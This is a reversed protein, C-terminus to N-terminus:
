PASLIVLMVVAAGQSSGPDTGRIQGSETVWVKIPNTAVIKGPLVRQNGANIGAIPGFGQGQLIGDGYSAGPGGDVDAQTMDVAQHAADYLGFVGTVGTGIDGQPSTGDWATDIEIWGDLLVENIAPVYVTVGNALGATDFAFPFRVVTIAGGGSGGVTVVSGDELKAKLVGDATDTYLQSRGGDSPPETSEGIKLSPEDSGAPDITVTHTLQLADLNTITNSDADLDETLPGGQPIGGPLASKFEITGELRTVGSEDKLSIPFETV